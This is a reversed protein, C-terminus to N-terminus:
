VREPARRNWVLAVAVSSVAIGSWFLTVNMATFYAGMLDRASMASSATAELPIAISAVVGIAQITVLLQETGCRRPAGRYRAAVFFLLGSLTAIGVLLLCGIRAVLLDHALEGWRVVSITALGHAAAALTGIWARRHKLASQIRSSGLLLILLVGATASAIAAQVAGRLAVAPLLEAERAAAVGESFSFVFAMELLVLAGMCTPISIGSSSFTRRIVAITTLFALILLAAWTIELRDDLLRALETM